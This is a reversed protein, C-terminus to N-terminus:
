KQPLVNVSTKSLQKWKRRSTPPLTMLYSLLFFSTQDPIQLTQFLNPLAGTSLLCVLHTPFNLVLNEAVTRVQGQLCKALKLGYQLILHM